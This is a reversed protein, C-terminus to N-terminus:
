ARTSLIKQYAAEAQDLVALVESESLVVTAYAGAARLQVIQNKQKLTARGYAHEESEGVKRHKVEFAFLHGRHCILLDPVGSQQYPNGHVKFIWATPYKKRVAEEINVVLNTEPQRTV